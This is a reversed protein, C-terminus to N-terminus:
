LGKRLKSMRKKLFVKKGKPNSQGKTTKPPPHLPLTDIINPSQPQFIQCKISLDDDAAYNPAHRTIVHVKQNKIKGLFIKPSDHM